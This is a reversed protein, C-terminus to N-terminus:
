PQEIKRITFVIKNGMSEIEVLKMVDILIGAIIADKDKDLKELMQKKHEEFAKGVEVKIGNQVVQEILQINNSETNM